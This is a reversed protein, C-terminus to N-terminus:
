LPYLRVRSPPCTFNSSHLAFSHLWIVEFLLASVDVGVVFRLDFLDFIV